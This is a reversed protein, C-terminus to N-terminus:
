GGSYAAEWLASRGGETPWVNVGGATKLKIAVEQTRARIEANTGPRGSISDLNVDWVAPVLCCNKAAAAATIAPDATGILSNLYGENIWTVVDFGYNLNEDVSGYVWASLEIERGKDRGVQDLVRRADGVFDTLFGSRVTRMRPDDLGVPTGDEGYRQRFEDLVPKEYETFEPGRVFCLNVGDADFRTAAERILALMFERVQPYAYSAKEVRTGDAMAVRFEPHSALFGIPHAPRRPPLTEFSAIGLRFMLDFKLGMEHVHPAVVEQPILNRELFSKLSAAAIKEGKIYPNTSQRIPPDQGAGWLRGVKSPYNTVEGYNVAWLVTDFDSYRFPEVLELLHEKTRYEDAWFYSLGDISGARGKPQLASRQTQLAAVEEASLPVLKVYALYVKQGFPGNVKGFVLDRGTLDATKFFVEKLVSYCKFRDQQWNGEPSDFPAFGPEGEKLRVFCPDDSLRVKLTTGGDYDHHPNWYGVHIAHWGAAGLPLTIEPVEMYSAAGIMTGTRVNPDDVTEYPILQWHGEQPGQSLIHRPKCCSLDTLYKVGATKETSATAMPSLLVLGLVVALAVQSYLTM